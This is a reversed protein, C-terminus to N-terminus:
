IVMKEDIEYRETHESLRMDKILITNEDRKDTPIASFRANRLGIRQFVIQHVRLMM